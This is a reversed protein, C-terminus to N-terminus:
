QPSRAAARRLRGRVLVLSGALVTLLAVGPRFIPRVGATLREAWTPPRTRDEDALAVDFYGNFMEDWSQTGARVEASPDPNAPNARSNDYVATCRIRTCAPLRLPEALVYRHQWNFDWRPVELLTERRGDAYLAEYRFSKGRLHMHPFFSLLLVDRNVQWTQSVVHDAAYPPIVLDTDYMLRTAVEKKVRKPDAFKLGICTRDTQASGVPTYHMVFLIHWGAPVRKAMGDPLQMAPTGPATAALCVSGLAGQEQPGPAGPPQLFVNCHHVV